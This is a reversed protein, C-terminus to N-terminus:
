RGRLREVVPALQEYGAANVTIYSTGFADRRRQLEDAIEQTSGRLIALSDHAILEEVSAGVFQEVMPPLQEGVAFINMSLELDRGGAAARVTDAMAAVDERSALPRAALTVTDAKDGAMALAKPGSAAMLVPTRRESQSARLADIAEGVLALRRAGSPEPYGLDETVQRLVHPAGTGIGLEFRDGTLVSLSDAEYAIMRPHRLPSAMVFTGVRLRTTVEAAIALSSSVSPLQLGDPMLLTDYGLGEVKRALDRWPGGQQPAAVVGFRFTHEAM